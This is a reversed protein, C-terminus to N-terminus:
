WALYCLCAAILTLHTALFAISPLIAAIRRIDETMATVLRSTGIQELEVLPTSIIQRSLTIRLQLVGQRVIRGLIERATWRGVVTVVALTLLISMLGKADRENGLARFLVVLLSMTTIGSVISALIALAFSRSSQAFPIKIRERCVM